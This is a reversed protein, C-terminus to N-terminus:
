VAQAHKFVRPVKLTDHVMWYGSDPAGNWKELSIRNISKQEGAELIEYFAGSYNKRVQELSMGMYLLHQSGYFAHAVARWCNFDQEMFM